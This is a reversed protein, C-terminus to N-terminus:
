KKGELKKILKDTGKVFGALFMVYMIFLYSMSIIAVFFSIDGRLALGVILSMMAILPTLLYYLFTKNRNIKLETLKIKDQINM